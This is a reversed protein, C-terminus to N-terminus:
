SSKVVWWQRFEKCLGDNDLKIVFIGDLEVKKNSPLKMFSAKWHAIGLDNNVTLIDYSFHIDKQSRPVDEWIREIEKKSKLPPSFPTEYYLVDECYLNAAAKPDRMTWARGLADLWKKFSKHNM